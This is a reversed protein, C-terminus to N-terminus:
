LYCRCENQSILTIEKTNLNFTYQATGIKTFETKVSDQEIAQHLTLHKPHSFKSWKNIEVKYIQSYCTLQLLLILSTILAKM